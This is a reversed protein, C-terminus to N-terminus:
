QRSGLLGAAEVAAKDYLERHARDELDTRYLKHRVGVLAARELCDAGPDAMVDEHRLNSVRPGAYITTEKGKFKKGAEGYGVVVAEIQEEASLKIFATGLKSADTYWLAETPQLNLESPELGVTDLFDELMRAREENQKKGKDDKTRVYNKFVWAPHTAWVYGMVRAVMTDVTEGVVQVVTNAANPFPFNRSLENPTGLYLKRWKPIKSTHLERHAMDLWELQEYVFKEIDKSIDQGFDCDVLQIKDLAM